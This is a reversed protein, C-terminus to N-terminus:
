RVEKPHTLPGAQEVHRDSNLLFRVIRQGVEQAESDSLNKQHKETCIRKLDDLAAQDIKM